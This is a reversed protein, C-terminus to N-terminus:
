QRFVGMTVSTTFSHNVTVLGTVSDAFAAPIRFQREQGAPVSMTPNTASSGGATKSADVITVTDPSAGGNKVHIFLDTDPTVTDSSSVATYSPTTGQGITQTTFLAM